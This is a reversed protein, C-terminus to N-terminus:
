SNSIGVRKKVYHNESAEKIMFAALDGGNIAGNNPTPSYDANTIYKGTAPADILNPAGVVTWNLNSAELLKYAQLHEKGVPLYEPNYGPQDLIIEDENAQLIGLGGLAVIRQVGAREMQEIINKIGLSRTKDSGDFSGGLVSIVADSGKVAKYVRDEDFVYGKVVELKDNQLDADILNEVNRGFAVVEHGLSLAHSVVFKGIMGSAGFVTLKM